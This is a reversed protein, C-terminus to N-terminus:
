QSEPRPTEVDSPPVQVSDAARGSAARWRRSLWAASTTGVPIAVAVEAARSVLAALLGLHEEPGSGAAIATPLAAATLGVAWETLGLGNGLFPVLSAAQSVVAVALAASMPIPAGVLRFVAWYRLAWALLDVFRIVFAWARARWGPSARRLGIALATGAATIATAGIAFRAGPPGMPLQHAGVSLAIGCGLAAFGAGVNGAIARVSDGVGIGNVAKHYALRGFVGPKLPLYNLLWSAGILASMEARGVRGYPRMLVGFTASMLLWNALPLLLVAAALAPSAHRAATWAASLDQTAVARIAAGLLLVGIAFGIVSRWRTRPPANTAGDPAPRPERPDRMPTTGDDPPPPSPM